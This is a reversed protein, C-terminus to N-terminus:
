SFQHIAKNIFGSVREVCFLLCLFMYKYGIQMWNNFRFHKYWCSGGMSINLIVLRNGDDNLPTFLLSQMLSKVWYLKSLLLFFVSHNLKVRCGETTWKEINESWYLCSSQTITLTYNVDTNPDYKPIVTSLSGKPPPDKVGVGEKGLANVKM